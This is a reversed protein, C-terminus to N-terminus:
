DRTFDDLTGASATASLPFQLGGLSAVGLNPSRALRIAPVCWGDQIFFFILRVM